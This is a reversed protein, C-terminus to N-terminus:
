KKGHKPCKANPGKERFAAHGRPCTCDGEYYAAVAEDIEAQVRDAIRAAHLLVGAYEEAFDADSNSAGMWSVRVGGVLLAAYPSPDANFNPMRSRRDVTASYRYKSPAKDDPIYIILEDRDGRRILLWVNGELPISRELEGRAMTYGAITYEENWVRDKEDIQLDREYRAEIARDIIQKIAINSTGKVRTPNSDDKWWVDLAAEVEATAYWHVIELLLRRSESVAETLELPLYVYRYDNTSSTAPIEGGLAVIRKSFKRTLTGASANKKPLVIVIRTIDSPQKKTAM